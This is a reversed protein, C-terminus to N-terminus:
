HIPTKFFFQIHECVANIFNERRFCSDWQQRARKGMVSLLEPKELALRLANLMSEQNGPRYMLGNVKDDFYQSVVDFDPYISQHVSRAILLGHQTSQSKGQFFRFQQWDHTFSGPLLPITTESPFIKNICHALMDLKKECGRYM